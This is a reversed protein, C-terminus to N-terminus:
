INQFYSTSALFYFIIFIHYDEIIKLSQFLVIYNHHYLIDSKSIHSMNNIKHRILGHFILVGVQETQLSRDGLDDDENDVELHSIHNEDNDHHPHRNTM